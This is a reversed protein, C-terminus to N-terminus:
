SQARARLELERKTPTRGAEFDDYEALEDLVDALSLGSVPHNQQLHKRLSLPAGAYEHGCYRCWQWSGTEVAADLVPRGPSYGHAHLLQAVEGHYVARM